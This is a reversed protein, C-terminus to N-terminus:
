HLALLMDVFDNENVSLLFSSEKRFPTYPHM